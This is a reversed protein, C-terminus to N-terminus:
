VVITPALGWVEKQVLVARQTRRRGADVLSLLLAHIDRPKNITVTGDRRGGVAVGILFRM